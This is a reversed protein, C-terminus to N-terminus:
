KSKDASAGGDSEFRVSKLFAKFEDQRAAVLERTGNMKFFWVNDGVTVMAGLTARAPGGAAVQNAEPILVVYSGKHGGVEIPETSKELDAQQIPPLGVEGRWRNINALPDAIVPASRTAFESISVKASQAGATIQFSSKVFTSPPGPQWSTPKEFKLESSADAANTTQPAGGRIPTGTNGGGIPPHGAPMEGRTAGDSVPGGSFPGGGAAFPPMMGGGGSRGRLDVFTIKGSAGEIERVDKALEQATTEALKMQGRWRNVNQLVQQPTGQWPIQNLTLELPKGETPVFITVLRIGDGPKQRWGEPLKWAPLAAGAAPPVSAIFKTVEDAKSEIATLPGVVKFVWAEDGNPVIAALMRDTPEGPEAETAAVAKMPSAEKPVTYTRVQEAPRCGAAM